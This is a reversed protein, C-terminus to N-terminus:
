SRRLTGKKSLKAYACEDLLETRLCGLLDSKQRREGKKFDESFTKQNRALM